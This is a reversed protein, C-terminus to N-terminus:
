LDKDVLPPEVSKTLNSSGFRKGAIADNRLSEQAAAESSGDKGTDGANGTGAEARASATQELSSLGM